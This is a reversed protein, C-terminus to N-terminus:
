RSFTEVIKGTLYQVACYKQKGGNTKIKIVKRGTKTVRALLEDGPQQLLGNTITSLVDKKM